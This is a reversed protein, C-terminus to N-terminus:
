SADRSAETWTLPDYKSIILAHKTNSNNWDRLARIEKVIFAQREPQRAIARRPGIAQVYYYRLRVDYDALARAIMNATRRNGAALLSTVGDLVDAALIALVIGWRMLCEAVEDGPFQKSLTTAAERLADSMEKAVTLDEPGLQM